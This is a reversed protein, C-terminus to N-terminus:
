QKKIKDLAFKNAAKVHAVLHKKYVVLVSTRADEDLFIDISTNSGLTTELQVLMKLSSLLASTPASKTLATLM